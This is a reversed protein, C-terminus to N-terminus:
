LGLGALLGRKREIRVIQQDDEGLRLEAASFLKDVVYYEGQIRYNVIEAAEGVGIVFLPPADIRRLPAAFRIFVKDGDDFVSVPKWSVEDGSIRYDFNLARPDVTASLAESGATPAGGKLAFMGDQPYRWSLSAIFTEKTSVLALHYTRRDTFITLNNNLGAVTPKVLVHARAEVDGSTTTDVLWRTTDGSSISRITEGPQLAIDTVRGPAAYVRYLAGEAYAFVQMANLYGDESPEIIAGDNADAVVSQPDADKELPPRVDDSDPDQELAQLQGPLPLPKPVTVVDIEVPQTALTAPAFEALEGGACGGLALVFAVVDLKSKM